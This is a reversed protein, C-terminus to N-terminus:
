AGPQVPFPETPNKAIPSERRGWVKASPKVGGLGAGFPLGKPIQPRQAPKQAAAGKGAVRFPYHPSSFAALRPPLPM